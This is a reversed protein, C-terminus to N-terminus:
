IRHSNKEIWRAVTTAHVCIRQEKLWLTLDITRAGNRKLELLEFAFRDLRSRRFRGPKRQIARLAQLREVEEAANFTQHM